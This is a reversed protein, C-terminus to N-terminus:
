RGRHEVAGVDGREHPHEVHVFLRPALAEDLEDVGGVAERRHALGHALLAALDAVFVAPRDHAVVVLELVRLGGADEGRLVEAVPVHDDRARAPQGDGDRILGECRRQIVGRGGRSVALHDLGHVAPRPALQGVRQLGLGLTGPHLHRDPQDVVDGGGHRHVARVSRRRDVALALGDGVAPAHDLADREGLVD